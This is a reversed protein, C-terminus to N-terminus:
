RSERQELEWKTPANQRRAAWATRSTARAPGKLLADARKPHFGRDDPAVYPEGGSRAEVLEREQRVERQRQEVRDSRLKEREEDSMAGRQARAREANEVAWREVEAPEVGADLMKKRQRRRKVHETSANGM